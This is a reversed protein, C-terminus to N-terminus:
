PTLVFAHFSAPIEETKSWKCCLQSLKDHSHLWHGSPPCLSSPHTWSCSYMEAVGSTRFLSCYKHLSGQSHEVFDRSWDKDSPYFSYSFAKPFLIRRLSMLSATSLGLWLMLLHSHETVLCWHTITESHSHSACGTVPWIPPTHSQNGSSLAATIGARLEEGLQNRTLQLFGQTAELQLLALVSLSLFTPLFM